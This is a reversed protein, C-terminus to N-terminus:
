KAFRQVEDLVRLFNGGWIKKIDDAGYGRRLLEITINIMQSVNECGPIGGGGDFDSGIGVYGTGVLGAVHDIHRIVTEIDAKGDPVLFFNYLCIQVVGGKEAIARIQADDLNRKHNCLAKVSSHSAIVPTQSAKLVDYFTKESAHSVDVIIGKRNMEAVVERGFRSLGNHEGEGKASDCIDNDGNHCLTIYVVGMEKFRAINHLDKGIAYGNEICPLIARKGQKKLQIIGRGDTAIGAKSSNGEVQKHISKLINVAKETARRLSEKDRAEQPLYAAMCVADLKGERMRVLDVLGVPMVTDPRKPMGEQVLIKSQQKKGIDYGGSFHMPTDCHSDLSVMEEHLYCAARYLAAEETINSFLKMMTTDGAAAMTEPHWQVSVVRGPSTIYEIAENIGDSTQAVARFGPAVTRIAQHHFSNVKLGTTGLLKSLYADKEIRVLHTPLERAEKQDHSTKPLSCQDVIDQWLDGGMAVNLLQHGRCICLLPMQQAIALRILTLDYIDREKSVTGLSPHPAENLFLPDIDGGGTIVLGDLAEVANSLAVPDTQIPLIVPIAGTQSIVKTYAFRVASNGELLNASVGILPPRDAKSTAEATDIAAFLGELSDIEEAKM